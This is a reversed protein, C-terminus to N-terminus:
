FEKVKWAILLELICSMWYIPNAYNMDKYGYGYM